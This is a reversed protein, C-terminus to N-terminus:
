FPMRELIKETAGINSSVYDKCTKSAAALMADNQLLADLVLRLSEFNQITFAGKSDVLDVAEKFKLYNPGFIVPLGFTAAELTNHIGKGFGGGIYSVTGYQYISSLMGINDVVLVKFASLDMGLAESYRIARVKLMSVIRQIGSESIEHPAIIFKCDIATSNIYQILLEEDAPWTSGAIVTKFNASFSSVITLEKVGKAIEFVRDFRTDGCKEVEKIDILQLLTKSDENQVFFHDIKKLTSRFWAGYWHFFVQEKRFIASFSVIPIQKKAIEIIFNPWFEYKIFYVAKPQVITVFKRAHWSLDFPLYCIVDAGEYNKRIEFGSPSFFTLLIKVEPRKRKIAEMVPRGQEFEGLSAAHFWVVPEGPRISQRLKRFIGNRGATFQRAKKNFPSVLYTALAFFGIIINYLFVM